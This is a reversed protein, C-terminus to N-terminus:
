MCGRYLLPTGNDDTIVALYDNIITSIQAEHESPKIYVYAEGESAGGQSQSTSSLPKDNSLNNYMYEILDCCLAKVEKPVDAMANIRNGTEQAIRSFVRTSYRAFVVPELVGGMEYYEDYSLYEM